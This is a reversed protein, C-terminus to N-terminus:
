RRRRRRRRRGGGKKWWLPWESQGGQSCKAYRIHLLFAM